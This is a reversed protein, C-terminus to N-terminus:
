ASVASVPLKTIKGVPEGTEVHVKLGALMQSCTTGFQRKLMMANMGAGIPGLGVSYDMRLTVKTSDGAPELEFSAVASRMAPVNKFEYIEVSLLRNEIWETVREQVTGMPALQCERSIGLGETQESTLKSAKVGPNWTVIEGFNALAPWIQEASADIQVTRQIITMHKKRNM